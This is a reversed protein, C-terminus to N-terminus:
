SPVQEGPLLRSRWAVAARRAQEWGNRQREGLEEWAPLPRGDHTTGVAACYALYVGKASAEATDVTIEDPPSDYGLVPGYGHEVLVNARVYEAATNAAELAAVAARIEEALGPSTKSMGRLKRSIGGRDRGILHAVAEVTIESRTMRELVSGLDTHTM